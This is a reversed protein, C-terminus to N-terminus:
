MVEILLYEEKEKLPSVKAKCKSGGSVEKVAVWQGDKLRAEVIYGTVPSGSDNIPVMWELEVFDKDMDMVKPEGPADPPNFVDRAVTEMVTELYDSEGEDNVAKVRFKYADGEVLGQTKCELSISKKVDVWKDEKLNMKEVVYHSIATGGDDSSAKWRLTCRDRALECVSLPESPREPPGAIDIARQLIQNLM